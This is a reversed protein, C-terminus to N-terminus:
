RKVYDFIGYIYIAQKKPLVTSQYGRVEQPRAKDNNSLLTALLYRKKNTFISFFPKFIQNAM